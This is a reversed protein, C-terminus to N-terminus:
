LDAKVKMSVAPNQHNQAGWLIGFHGKQVPVLLYVSSYQAQLKFPSFKIDLM